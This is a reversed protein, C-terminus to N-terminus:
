GPRKIKSAADLARQLVDPSVGKKGELEPKRYGRKAAFTGAALERDREEQQREYHAQIEPKRAPDERWRAWVTKAARLLEGTTVMRGRDMHRVWYRTAEEWLEPPYTKSGLERAWEDVLLDDDTRPFRDPALRKGLDLVSAALVQKQQWTYPM